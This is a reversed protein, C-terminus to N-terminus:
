RPRATRTAARSATSSGTGPLDRSTGGVITRFAARVDGWIAHAIQSAVSMPTSALFSNSGGCAALVAAVFISIPIRM